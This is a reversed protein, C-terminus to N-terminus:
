GNMKEEVMQAAQEWTRKAGEWLGEDFGGEDELSAKYNATVALRRFEQALEKFPQKADADIATWMALTPPKPTTM